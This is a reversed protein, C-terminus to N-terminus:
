KSNLFEALTQQQKKSLKRVANLLAPSIERLLLVNKIESQETQPLGKGNIGAIYDLSVQYFKAFYTATDLPLIREGKEYRIYSKQSTYAIKACQEQTLCYHERLERLVTM